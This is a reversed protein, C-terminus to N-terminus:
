HEGSTPNLLETYKDLDEQTELKCLYVVGTTKDTMRVTSGPGELSPAKDSYAIGTSARYRTFDVM